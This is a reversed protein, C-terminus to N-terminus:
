TPPTPSLVDKKKWWNPNEKKQQIMFPPSPFWDFARNYALSLHSSNQLNAGSLKVQGRRRRGHSSATIGCVKPREVGDGAGESLRIVEPWRGSLLGTLKMQQLLDSVPRRRGPIGWLWTQHLSGLLVPFLPIFLFMTRQHIKGSKLWQKTRWTWPSSGKIAPFLAAINTLQHTPAEQSQCVPLWTASPM